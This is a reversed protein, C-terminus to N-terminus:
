RTMGRALRLAAREREQLKIRLEKACRGGILGSRELEATRAVEARIAHLRTLHSRQEAAEPSTFRHLLADAQERWTEYRELVRDLGPITVRSELRVIADVVLTAVSVVGRALAAGHSPAGLERIARNMPLGTTHLADELHDVGALLTRGTVADIESEALLKEIASRELSLALLEATFSEASLSAAVSQLSDEARRRREECEVKLEDAIKRNTMTITLAEEALVDEAIAAQLAQLPTPEALGLREVLWSISTGCLLLTAVVVGSTVVLVTDRVEPQIGPLSVVHLALALSVGGRLGGWVMVAQHRSDIRSSFRGVTNAVLVVGLARSVMIAALAVFLIPVHSLLAEGSVRASVVLGVLFFILANVVGAAYNWFRAAFAAVAPSVQHRGYSGAVLGAALTALVGSVGVVHEALVFSAYAVAVSVSIEVREEALDGILRFMAWATLAGLALGGFVTVVLRVGVDVGTSVTLVSSGGIVFVCLAQHLVIATGDNCLSEGEVITVLRPAVGLERFAAVVAVPDTAALIVGLLLAIRWDIGFAGGGGLSLVVAVTGATLLLVPLALASIIGLNKWLRRPNLRHSAEYVLPPLLVFLILDPSVRRGMAAIRSLEGTAPTGEGAGASRALLGLSLGLALMAVSGPVWIRRQVLGLGAIALLVIVLAIVASLETSTALNM